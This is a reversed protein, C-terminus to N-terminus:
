VDLCRQHDFLQTWLQFWVEKNDGQIVGHVNEDNRNDERTCIYWCRDALHILSTNFFFLCFLLLLGCAM